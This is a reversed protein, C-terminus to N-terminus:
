VSHKSTVSACFLCELISKGYNRSEIWPRTLTLFNARDARTSKAGVKCLYINTYQITLCLYKTSLDLAIYYHVTFHHVSLSLLFGNQFCFSITNRKTNPLPYSPLRFELSPPFPICFTLFRQTLVVLLLKLVLQLKLMCASSHLHVSRICQM